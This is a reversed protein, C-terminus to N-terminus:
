WDDGSDDSDEGMALRDLLVEDIASARETINCIMGKTTDPLISCLNAFDVHSTVLFALTLSPDINELRM